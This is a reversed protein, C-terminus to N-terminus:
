IQDRGQQLDNWRTAGRPLLLGSTSWGERPSGREGNRLGHIPEAGNEELLESTSSEWGRAVELSTAGDHEVRVPGEGRRALVGVGRESRRRSALPL